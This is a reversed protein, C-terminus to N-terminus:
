IRGVEDDRHTARPTHKRTLLVGCMLPAQDLVESDGASASSRVEDRM